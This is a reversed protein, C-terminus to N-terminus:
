FRWLLKVNGEAPATTAAGRNEMNMPQTTPRTAPPQPPAPPSPPANVRGTGTKNFSFWAVDALGFYGRDQGAFTLYVDHNGTVAKSLAVTRQYYRQYSWTSVIPIECVPPADPRDLRVSIVGGAHGADVAYSLTFTDAGEAPFQLCDYRAWAGNRVNVLTQNGENVKKAMSYATGVIRQDAPRGDLIAFKISKLNFGGGSFVLFVDQTGTPSTQMPTEQCVFDSYGATAEVTLTAIVPGDPAGLRVEIENGAYIQPCSVVACFAMARPADAPPFEVNDYEVWDGRNIYALHEYGDKPGRRADCTKATIVDFVKRPPPPPAPDAQAQATAAAVPVDATIVEPEPPGVAAVATAPASAAQQRPGGGGHHREWYLAALGMAAVILTAVVAVKVPSTASMITFAGSAVAGKSVAATGVAAVASAGVAAPASEVAHALLAATLAAESAVVGRSSLFSRMRNLGRYVRQRVTGESAGLAAAAETYSRDLFYRLVVAERDGASLSGLAADLHPAVEDWAQKDSAGGGDTRAEGTMEAVKRERRARRAEGKIVNRCELATVRLLWSALVTDARLQRGKRMLVVFVQQTVDQAAHADGRMQRRAASYVLDVYRHVLVAIEAPDGSQAYRGLVSVDDDAVANMRTNVDVAVAGDGLVCSIETGDQGARWGDSARWTVSNMEGVGTEVGGGIM